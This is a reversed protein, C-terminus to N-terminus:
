TQSGVSVWTINNTGSNYASCIHLKAPSSAYDVLLSGVVARGAFSGGVGSTPAGNLQFPRDMGQSYKAAVSNLYRTGM